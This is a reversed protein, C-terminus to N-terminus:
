QMDDEDRMWDEQALELTEENADILNFEPQLVLGDSRFFVITLQDTILKIIVEIM